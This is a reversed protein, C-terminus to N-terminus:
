DTSKTYQVTIYLRKNTGYNTNRNNMVYFNGSADIYAMLAFNARDTGYPMGKVDIVQEGNPIDAGTDIWSAYQFAPAITVDLTIEYIPKGNIWTGVVQETASYTHSGGGGGGSPAFVNQSTGNIEIEAIKTGSQQIQSWSVTDGSGGSGGAYDIGNLTIKSM